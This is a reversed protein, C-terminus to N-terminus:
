TNNKPMCKRRKSLLLISPKRKMRDLCAAEVACKEPTDTLIRSSGKKRGKRGTRPTAKPFPRIAESTITVKKMINETNRNIKALNDINAASEIASPSPTQVHAKYTNKTPTKASKDTEHNLEPSFQSALTTTPKNSEDITQASAIVPQDIEIDKIMFSIRICGLIVKMGRNKLKQLRLM